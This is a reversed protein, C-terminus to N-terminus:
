EEKIFFHVCGLFPIYNPIVLTKKGVYFVLHIDVHTRTCPHAESDVTLIICGMAVESQEENWLLLLGPLYQCVIERVNCFRNYKSNARPSPLKYEIFHTHIQAHEMEEVQWQCFCLPSFYLFFTFFYFLFFVQKYFSVQRSLISFMHFYIIVHFNSLM